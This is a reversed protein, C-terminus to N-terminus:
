SVIPENGQVKNLFKQYKADTPWYIFSWFIGIPYFYYLWSINASLFLVVLSMIYVSNTIAFGVISSSTFFKDPTMASSKNRMFQALQIRAIIPMVSPSVAAVILLIYFLMEYQGGARPTFGQMHAVVLYLIPAVILLAIAVIKVQRPM